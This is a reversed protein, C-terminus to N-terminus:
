ARAHQRDQETVMQPTTPYHTPVADAAASSLPRSLLYGQLVDCELEHLVAVQERTEVGEAVVTMGMKHAMAITAETIDSERGAGGLQSVFARDVKLVDVPFRSLHALSSHGTGFDDLSLSVGLLKLQELVAATEAPSTMLASETVELHLAHAPLGSEALAAAVTGPLHASLQRPAINVAMHIQSMQPLRRLAVAKTCAERLMWEGLPVILGSDEAIPVFEAPSVWGLEASHWRMLAEFGVLDGTSTAYLPQYAASMEDRESAHRLQHVVQMRRVVAEHMFGEYALATGPGLARANRLALLANRLLDDADAADAVWAAAIGVHLHAGDAVTHEAPLARLLHTARDPCADPGPRLVAFVDPELRFLEEAGELQARLADAFSRLVTDAAPLGWSDAVAAQDTLGLLVLQPRAGREYLEALREQLARHNGTGTLRDTRAQRHAAARQDELARLTMVMRAFTAVVQALALSVGIATAVPDVEPWSMLVAIPVVMAAASVLLRPHSVRVADTRVTDDSTLEGMDPQLIGVALLLYAALFASEVLHGVGAPLLGAAQATYGIDGVFMALMGATIYRLARPRTTHTMYARSVLYLILVDIMPCAVNAFRHLSTVGDPAFSPNTLTAWVVLGGALAVAAADLLAPVDRRGAPSILAYAFAVLGAYGVLTWVDATAAARSWAASEIGMDSRLVMGVLSMLGAVALARGPWRGANRHLFTSVPAAAAALVAVLAYGAAGAGTPAVLYGATAAVFLVAAGVPVTVTLARAPRTVGIRTSTMGPM